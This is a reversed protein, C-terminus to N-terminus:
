RSKSEQNIDKSSVLEKSHQKIYEQLDKTQKKLEQIEMQMAIRTQMNNNIDNNYLADKMEKKRETRIRANEKEQLMEGLLRNKETEREENRKEKEIQKSIKYARYKEIEESTYSVISDKVDTIKDIGTAVTEMGAIKATTFAHRVKLDFNKTDLMVKTLAITGMTGIKSKISSIKAKGYLKLYYKTEGFSKSLNTKIEDIDYENEYNQM